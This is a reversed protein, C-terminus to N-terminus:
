SKTKAVTAEQKKVQNEDEKKEAQQTQQTVAAPANFVFVAKNRTHKASWITPEVSKSVGIKKIWMLM